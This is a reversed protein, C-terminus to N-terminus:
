LAFSNPGNKPQREICTGSIMITTCLPNRSPRFSRCLDSPLKSVLLIKLKAMFMDALMVKCVCENVLSDQISALNTTLPRTDFDKFRLVPLRIEEDKILM